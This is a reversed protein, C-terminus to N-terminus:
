EIVECYISIDDLYIQKDLTFNSIFNSLETNCECIVDIDNDDTYKMLHAIHLRKEIERFEIGLIFRSSIYSHIIENLKRGFDLLSNDDEFRERIKFVIDINPDRKLKDLKIKVRKLEKCAFLDIFRDSLAQLVKIDSNSANDLAQNYLQLALDFQNFIEYTFGLNYINLASPNIEIAKKYAKISKDQQNLLAYINGEMSSAISLDIQKLKDIDRLLANTFLPTFNKMYRADNLRRSLSEAITQPQMAVM